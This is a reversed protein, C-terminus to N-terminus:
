QTLWPLRFLYHFTIPILLTAGSIRRLVKEKKYPILDNTNCYQRLISQLAILILLASVSFFIFEFKYQVFSGLKSYTSFLSTTSTKTIAINLLMSFSVTCLLIHISARYHWRERLKNGVSSTTRYWPEHRQKIPKYALPSTRARDIDVYIPTVILHLLIPILVSVAYYAGHEGFFIRVIDPM